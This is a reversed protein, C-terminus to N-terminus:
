KEEAGSNEEGEEYLPYRASYDKYNGIVIQKGRLTRRNIVVPGVLNTLVQKKPKEVFTVINLVLVENPSHIDLYEIDEDLIEISYDPVLGFPEVVVFSQGGKKKDRLRLFPEEKESFLVEMRTLDSFGVLGEPLQM